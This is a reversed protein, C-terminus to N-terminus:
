KFNKPSIASYQTSNQHYFSYVLKVINEKKMSNQSFNVHRLINSSDFEAM